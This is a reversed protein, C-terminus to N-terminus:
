FVLWYDKFINELNNADRSSDNTIIIISFTFLAFKDSMTRNFIFLFSLHSPLSFIDFRYSTCVRTLAMFFKQLQFALLTSQCLIEIHCTIKQLLFKRRGTRETFM